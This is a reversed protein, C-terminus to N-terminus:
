EYKKEFLENQIDYKERAEGGKYFEPLQNEHRSAAAIGNILGVVRNNLLVFLNRLAEKQYNDSCATNDLDAICAGIDKYIGVGENYLHRSQGLYKPNTANIKSVLLGIRDNLQNKYDIFDKLAPSTVAKRVPKNNSYSDINVQKKVTNQQQSYQQSSQKQPASTKPQAPNHFLFIFILFVVGSCIFINVSNNDNKSSNAQRQTSQYRDTQHVMRENGQTNIQKFPKTVPIPEQTSAKYPKSVTKDEERVSSAGAKGLNDALDGLGAFGKKKDESKM